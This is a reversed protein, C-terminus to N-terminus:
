RTSRSAPSRWRWWSGPFGGLTAAVLAAACAIAMPRPRFLRRDSMGVALAGLIMGGTQAVHLGAVHAYGIDLDPRVDPATTGVLGLVAAALPSPPFLYWPLRPRAAAWTSSMPSRPRARRPRRRPAGAPRRPRPHAALRPGAARAADLGRAPAGAGAPDVLLDLSGARADLAIEDGDRVLALPGGVAAEPSCHLVITGYATGSMRADSVRVMDRVGAAALRRPLPLAGAEPMGAAVPGANRLVLVHEPVLTSRPITSARPSTPRALRLGAGTRPPAAARRTAAAPKMVAGDPALRAACSRSGAPRRSRTTSAASRASGTAPRRARRRGGRRPDTGAVTRAGPELLPRLVRLLAPVGGARHFDELYGSGSPKVDVLM